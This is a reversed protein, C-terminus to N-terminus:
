PGKPETVLRFYRHESPSTAITWFRETNQSAFATDAGIRKWDPADLSSTWELHYDM